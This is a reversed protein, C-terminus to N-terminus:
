WLYNNTIFIRNEVELPAINVCIVVTCAVNNCRIINSQSSVIMLNLEPCKCLYRLASQKLHYWTGCM